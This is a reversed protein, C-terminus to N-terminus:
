AAARGALETSFKKKIQPSTVSEIQRHVCPSQRHQSRLLFRLACQEVIKRDLVMHRLIVQQARNVTEYIQTAGAFMQLFKVAVCATWGNIGFPENTHQQHAITKADSRFSPKAFLNMEVKSIAPEATQIKSFCHRTMRRKGLVSQGNGRQHEAAGSPQFSQPASCRLRGRSHGTSQPLHWNSRLQCWCVSSLVSPLNPCQRSWAVPREARPPHTDRRELHHPRRRSM